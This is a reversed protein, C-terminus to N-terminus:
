GDAKGGEVEAGGPPPWVPEAALAKESRSCSSGDKRGWSGRAGIAAGDALVLGRQVATSIKAMNAPPPTQNACFRELSQIATNGGNGPGPQNWGTESHKPHLSKTDSSNDETGPHLPDAADISRVNDGRSAGPALRVASPPDSSREGRANAPCGARQRRSPRPAPKKGPKPLGVLATAKRAKTRRM